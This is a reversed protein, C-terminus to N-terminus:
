TRALYQAIATKLQEAVELAARNQADREARENAFSQPTKDYSAVARRKGGSVSQNTTKDILQYDVTVAVQAATTSLSDSQIALSRTTSVVLMKIKYRGGPVMQGGNLKFLLRNRVQQAVRNHVPDIAISKMVSVIDQSQDDGPLTTTSSTANLPQVTCAALSLLMAGIGVIKAAQSGDFSWM